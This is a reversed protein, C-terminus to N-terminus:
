QYTRFHLQFDQKSQALDEVLAHFGFLTGETIYNSQKFWAWAQRWASKRGSRKPDSLNFNQGESGHVLSFGGCEEKKGRSERGLRVVRGWSLDMGEGSFRWKLGGLCDRVGVSIPNRLSVPKSTVGKTREQCWRRLYSGNIIM